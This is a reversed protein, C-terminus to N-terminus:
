TYIYYSDGFGRIIKMKNGLVNTETINVSM